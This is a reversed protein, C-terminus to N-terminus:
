RTVNKLWKKQKYRIFSLPLKIFEDALIIMYVLEVPAKFVFAAIAGCLISGGWMTGADMYLGVKTDGGARFVGVIMTTNIAQAFVYVSMCILMFGMYNASRESVSLFSVVFPRAILIVIAGAFGFVVSLKIFRKAYREALETKGEGIVKGLMISTANAVGFVIVTALNRTVQAVSNAAVASSNLHGIIAANASFGAGWILENIIVPASYKIFDKFLVPNKGFIDGVGLRVDQNMFKAYVLVIVLEMVRAILTALAAGEIGMAPMGCLGFIFIANFVINIIMSVLYVITSIIVREVSRMINLYIMTVSMLLYTWAVIKLYKVGEDIVAQESTFIGMLQAPFCLTIVTFLVGTVISLRLAIGLVKEITRKDKKGWYQATLVTAGSTIGFFILSLIFQIQGALSSGSLVDEGVKGLMVVDATTIGTNILNQLAMPIVLAFVKKYFERGEADLNFM